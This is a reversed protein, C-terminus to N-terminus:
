QLVTTTESRSMGKKKLTGLQVSFTNCIDQGNLDNLWAAVQVSQDEGQKNM